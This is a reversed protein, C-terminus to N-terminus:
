YFKSSKLAIESACNILGGGAGQDTVGPHVVVKGPRLLLRWHVPSYDTTNSITHPVSHTTPKTLASLTPSSIHQRAIPDTNPSKPRWSISAMPGYFSQISRVQLTLLGAFIYCTRVDTRTGWEATGTIAIRYRYQIAGVRSYM